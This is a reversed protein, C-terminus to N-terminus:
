INQNQFITQRLLIYICPWIMKGLTNAYNVTIFMDICAYVNDFLKFVDNCPLLTIDIAVITDDYILGM